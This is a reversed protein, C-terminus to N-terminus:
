KIMEYIIIGTAVSANLSNVSGNMRITAILDCNKSVLQSIGKGENGIVLCKKMNYDISRYDIGIMDTGIIWYGNKKLFNIANVLNTVKAINVDWVTGVSTKIVTSNVDVARDKPIVIGDVGASECTRIIAGLNHPDEIHDLIVILSDNKETIIDEINKYKYDEVDLIIGQNLSSDIMDNLAKVSLKKINSCKNYIEDLLYKDSFNDSIYAKKIKINHKIVEDCVNKGYVLM